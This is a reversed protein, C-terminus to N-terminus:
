EALFHAAKKAFEDATLDAFHKAKALGGFLKTMERDINEPYCFMSNGKSMRVTRPKGAWTYVDQFLHRHLQRYHGYDMSGDPLPEGARQTSIESEFAALQRPTRLGLKNKLVSSKPYCYTDKIAKYM